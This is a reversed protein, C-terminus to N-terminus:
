VSRAHPIRAVFTKSRLQLVPRKEVMRVDSHLFRHAHYPQEDNVRLLDILRCNVAVKHQDGLLKLDTRIRGDGVRESHFPVMQREIVDGAPGSIRWYEVGSCIRTLPYGCTMSPM